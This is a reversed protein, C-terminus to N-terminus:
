KKQGLKPSAGYVGQNVALAVFYSVILGALGSQDCTIKYEGFYDMWGACSLGFSVAAIVFVLVAMILQKTSKAIDPEYKKDINEFWTKFGPVYSFLLSLIGSAIVLM